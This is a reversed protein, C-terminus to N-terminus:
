LISFPRLNKRRKVRSKEMPQQGTCLVLVCLFLAFENLVLYNCYLLIETIRQLYNHRLDGRIHSFESLVFKLNCLCILFFYVCILFTLVSKNCTQFTLYLVKEDNLSQFCLKSRVKKISEGSDLKKIASCKSELSVVVRKRKGSM